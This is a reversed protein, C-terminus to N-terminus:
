SSPSPTKIRSRVLRVATPDPAGFEDALILTNMCGATSCLYPSPIHYYRQTPKGSPGHILWYRGLDFDNVYFHGRSMGSADLM